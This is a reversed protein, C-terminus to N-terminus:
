QMYLRKGKHNENRMISQHGKFINRKDKWGQSGYLFEDKKKKRYGEVAQKIKAQREEEMYRTLERENSSLQREQLKKQITLEQEAQKYRERKERLKDLLDRLIGM